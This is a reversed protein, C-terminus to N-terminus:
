RGHEQGPSAARQSTASRADPAPPLSARRLLGNREARSRTPPIAAAARRFANQRRSMSATGHPLVTTALEAAELFANKASVFAGLDRIDFVVRGLQIRLHSPQGRPRVLQGSGPPSGAVDIVVATSLVGRVPQVPRRAAGRPLRTADRTHRHWIQAFTAASHQDHLYLLATGIRVGVVAQATGAHHAVVDTDQAGDMTLVLGITPREREYMRRLFRGDVTRDVRAPEVARNDDAEDAGHVAGHSDRQRDTTTV